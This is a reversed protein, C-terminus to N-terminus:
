QKAKIDKKLISKDIKQSIDTSLFYFATDVKQVNEAIRLFQRVDQRLQVFNSYAQTSVKAYEILYLTPLAAIKFTTVTDPKTNLDLMIKDFVVKTESDYPKDSGQVKALM